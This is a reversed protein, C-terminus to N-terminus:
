MFSLLYQCDLCGDTEWVQIYQQWVGRGHLLVRNRYYPLLHYYAAKQAIDCDVYMCPCIKPSIALALKGKGLCVSVCECVWVSACECVWVHVNLDNFDFLFLRYKMSSCCDVSHSACTPLYYQLHMHTNHM